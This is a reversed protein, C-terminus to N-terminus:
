HFTVTRELNSDAELTKVKSGETDHSTELLEKLTFHEALRRKRVDGDKEDCGSGDNRDILGGESVEEPHTDLTRRLPWKSIRYSEEYLNKIPNGEM